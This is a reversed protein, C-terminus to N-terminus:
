VRRSAMESFVDRVPHPYSVTTPTELSVSHGASTDDSPTDSFRRFCGYRITGFYLTPRNIPPFRVAVLTRVNRNEFDNVTFRTRRRRGDPVRVPRRLSLEIKWVHVTFGVNPNRASISLVNNNNARSNFLAFLAEHSTNFDRLLYRRVYRTTTNRSSSGNIQFTGTLTGTISPVRPGHKCDTGSATISKPKSRGNPVYVRAVSSNDV